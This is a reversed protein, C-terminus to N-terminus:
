HKVIRLTGHANETVVELFYVGVSLESMDIDMVRRNGQKSYVLEGQMNFVNLNSTTEEGLDVTTIGSTPNPYAMVRLDNSFEVISNENPIGFNARVLPTFNISFGDEINAWGNTGFYWSKDETFTSTAVGVAGETAASAAEIGVFYEGPTLNVGSTIIFTRFGASDNTEYEWNSSALMNSPQGNNTSFIVARLTDGITAESRYFTVSTLIDTALVDYNNGLILQNTFGGATNNDRAFITDTVVFFDRLTDNGANFDNSDSAVYATVFYVGTDAPNHATAVTLLTDDGAILMPISASDNFVTAGQEEVNVVLKPNSADIPYINSVRASYNLTWPTAQTEPVFHYPMDTLDTNELDLKGTTVLINDLFLLNDDNTQHVFAIYITQGNYASLDVFWNQLVGNGGDWLTHAVGTEGPGSEAFKILTDTFATVTDTTTSVLVKYADAFAQEFPASQWFLYYNPGCVNFSDMVLWNNAVGAPSFWSSAAAVFNTDGGPLIAEALPYWDMPRGNADTLGDLDWNGWTAPIANSQFDEFMLTDVSKVSGSHAYNQHLVPTGLQHEKHLILEEQETSFGRSEIATRQTFGCFLALSLSITLLTKKM